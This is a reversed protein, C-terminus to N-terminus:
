ANIAALVEQNLADYVVEEMSKPKPTEGKNEQEEKGLILSVIAGDYGSMFYCGADELTAPFTTNRSAVNWWIFKVSDVYEKPFAELLMKKMRQYNTDANEGDAPDFQMDSVVLFATPYDSLPIHPKKVRVRVIEQVVSQFNTTGMTCKNLLSRYDNVFSEGDVAVVSSEKDFLMVTNHFAGKNLGAFYLGLSLSVDLPTVGNNLETWSMSGSTDLVSLVNGEVGGGEEGIKLLHKFQKDITHKTSFSMGYNIRAQKGLEYPYGTFKVSPQKDLWQLYKEELGHREIFKGGTLISLARGPILNWNLDNYRGNSILKQFEHATGKAKIHNYEKYSLKNYAAFEKALGNSISAWQTNCKSVARIRPMFKKILESHSDSKLGYNILDFVVSHNIANTEHISDYYMLTWLDKWSGVLPLVWLNKEFAEKQNAALWLIRKFAEDRVGAGKQISETKKDGDIRVKRTILRLYFPFRLALTNDAEWLEGQDKFVDELGRGRYTAASGFQDVIASGTTECAIAGKETYAYPQYSKLFISERKYDNISTFEGM